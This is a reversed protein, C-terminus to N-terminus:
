NTEPSVGPTGAFNPRSGGIGDCASEMRSLYASRQVAYADGRPSQHDGGDAPHLAAAAVALDLVVRAPGFLVDMWGTVADLAYAGVVLGAGSAHVPGVLPLVLYPAPGLGQLCLAEGFSLTRRHMGLAAAVDYVGALGFSSNILVRATSQLGGLPEGAVLLAAATSIDRLNATATEIGRRVVTPVWLDASAAIPAVLHTEVARNLQFVRRNISELPDSQEASAGVALCLGVLALTFLRWM